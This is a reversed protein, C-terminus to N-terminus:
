RVRQKASSFFVVIRVAARMFPMSWTACAWVALPSYGQYSLFQEGIKAINATERGDDGVQDPIWRRKEQGDNGVNKIPFGPDKSKRKAKHRAPSEPRCGEVESLGAGVVGPLDGESFM